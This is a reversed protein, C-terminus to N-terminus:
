REHASRWALDLIKEQMEVTCIGAWEAERFKRDYLSALDGQLSYWGGSKQALGLGVVLDLLNAMRDVGNQFNIIFRAERFPPALKNKEVEAVCSIGTRVGDDEVFGERKVRIILSAYFKIARGGPMLEKPGYFNGVNERIQNVLVLVVDQTAILRILKRLSSSLVKAQQGPQLDYFHDKKDMEVKSPTAALSDWVVVLPLDEYKGRIEKVLKEVAVFTEEVTSPHLLLLSSGRIGIRDARELDFAYETDILVGLGGVRQAEALVHYALTSKGHGESGYLLTVRGSPIGPKGIALDLTPVQTSVYYRPACEALEEPLQILDEDIERISKIVQKVFSEDV